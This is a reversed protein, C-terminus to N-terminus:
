ASPPVCPRKTRIFEVFPSGDHAYETTVGTFSFGAWRLWRHHLTNRCDSFNTLVAYNAHLAGSLPRTLRAIQRGHDRIAPTCVMWPSGVGPGVPAVGFLVVPTGSPDVAVWSRDSVAIARVLRDLPDGGSCSIIERRDAPRLLFSIEEADSPLAERITLSM